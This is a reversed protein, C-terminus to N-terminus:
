RKRGIGIDFLDLLLLINMLGATLLFTTGYENTVALIRSRKLSLVERYAPQDSEPPSVFLIRGYCAYRGILDMPGLAVNAVTALYSLPQERDALYIRGQLMLGLAFTLGVIALFVLGKARKGMYIHGTGPLLWGLLCAVTIRGASQM